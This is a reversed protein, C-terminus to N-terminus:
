RTTNWFFTLMTVVFFFSSFFWIHHLARFPGVNITCNSYVLRPDDRASEFFVHPAPLDRRLTPPLASTVPVLDESPLRLRDVLDWVEEHSLTDGQIRLFSLAQLDVSRQRWGLRVFSLSSSSSGEATTNEEVPVMTATEPVYPDINAPEDATAEKPGGPLPPKLLLSSSSPSARQTEESLPTVLRCLHSRVAAGDLQFGRHNIYALHSSVEKRPLQLVNIRLALRLIANSSNHIADLTRQMGLTDCLLHPALAGAEVMLLDTPVMRLIALM